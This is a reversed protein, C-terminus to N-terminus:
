TKNSLCKNKNGKSKYKKHSKRRSKKNIKKNNQKGGKKITGMNVAKGLMSSLMGKKQTAGMNVAKGLMSSLMGKKQTAGIAASKAKTLETSLTNQTDKLLKKTQNFPTKAEELSNSLKNVTSSLTKKLDIATNNDSTTDKLLNIPNNNSPTSIQQQIANDTYQSYIHPFHKQVYEPMNKVMYQPSRKVMFEPFNKALHQNKIQAKTVNCLKKKIEAQQRTIRKTSPKCEITPPNEAIYKDIKMEIEKERPNPQYSTM